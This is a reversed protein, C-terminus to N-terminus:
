DRARLTQASRCVPFSVVHLDNLTLSTEPTERRSAATDIHLM